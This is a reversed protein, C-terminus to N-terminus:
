LANDMREALADPSGMQGGALPAEASSIPAAKIPVAPNEPMGTLVVWM